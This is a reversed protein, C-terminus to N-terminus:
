LKLTRRATPGDTGLKVTVKANGRARPLKLKVVFKSGCITRTTSVSRSGRKVSFRAQPCCGAIRARGAIRAKGGSARRVSDLKLTAGSTSACTETEGGSSPGADSVLTQFPCGGAAGSSPPGGSKRAFDQTWYIGYGGGSAIGVGLDAFSGSLINQCHGKSAMWATMVARPTRQGAAINEGASVWTYGANTIRTSFSTGNQSDHDFYNNAAMDASHNRAAADLKSDRALAPLGRSTREANVLCTVADAM